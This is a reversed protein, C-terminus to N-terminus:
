VSARCFTSARSASENRRAREIWARPPARTVGRVSQERTGTGIVWESHIVVLLDCHVARAEDPRAALHNPEPRRELLGGFLSTTDSGPRREFERRGARRRPSDRLIAARQVFTPTAISVRVVGFRLFRGLRRSPRRRGDEGDNPPEPAARRRSETRGAGATVRRARAPRRSAFRVKAARASPSKAGHASPSSMRVLRPTKASLCGSSSGAGTVLTKPAPPAPASPRTAAAADGGVGEGASHM